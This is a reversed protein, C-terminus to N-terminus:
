RPFIQWPTTACLLVVLVCEEKWSNFVDHCVSDQRKFKRKSVLKKLCEVM